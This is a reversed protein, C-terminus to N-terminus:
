VGDCPWRDVRMGSCFASSGRGADRGYLGLQLTCRVRAEVLVSLPLQLRRQHDGCDGEERWDARHVYLHRERRSAGALM